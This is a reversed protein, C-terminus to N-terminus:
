MALWLVFYCMFVSGFMFLCTFLGALIDLDEKNERYFKSWSRKIKKSM